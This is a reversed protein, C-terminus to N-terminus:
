ENLTEKILSAWKQYGAESLHTGDTTYDERLLGQDNAFAEHLDLLKYIGFNASSRIIENVEDIPEILFVKDTPLLSQVYLKTEPLAKHLINTIKLINEGVYSASPVENEYHMNFLDNIGIKLYVAEPKYFILEDLRALVGNSGDGAIGRNKANSISLRENWDGAQETISNGVFVIDGEVLASHQFVKIRKKYHNKTWTNHYPIEIDPSPYIQSAINQTKSSVNCNSIIFFMLLIGVIKFLRM